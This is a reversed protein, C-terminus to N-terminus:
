RNTVPGGSRNSWLFVTCERRDPRAAMFQALLASVRTFGSQYFAEADAESNWFSIATVHDPDDHAVLVIESLYGQFHNIVEPVAHDRIAACLDAGVGPKARLEIVHSVM